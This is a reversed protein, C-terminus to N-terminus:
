DTHKFPINEFAIKDEGEMRVWAVHSSVIVKKSMKTSVYGCHIKTGESLHATLMGDGHNLEVSAATDLRLDTYAILVEGKSNAAIEVTALHTDTPM